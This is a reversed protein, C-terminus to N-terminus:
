DLSADGLPQPQYIMLYVESVDSLSRGLAALLRDREGEFSRGDPVVLLYKTKDEFQLVYQHAMVLFLIAFLFGGQQPSRSM